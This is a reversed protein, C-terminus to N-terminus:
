TYHYSKVEIGPLLERLKEQFARLDDVMIDSFYLYERACYVGVSDKLATIRTAEGCQPCPIRVERWDVEGGEDQVRNITDYYAAAVDSDCAPCKPEIAPDQPIIFPLPSQHTGLFDFADRAWSAEEPAYCELDPAPSIVGAAILQELSDHVFGPQDEHTFVYTSIQGM